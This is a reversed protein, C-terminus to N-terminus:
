KIGFITTLPKGIKKRNRDIFHNGARVHGKPHIWTKGHARGIRNKDMTIRILLLGIQRFHYGALPAPSHVQGFGM